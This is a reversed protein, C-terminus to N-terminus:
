LVARRYRNEGDGLDYETLECHGERKWEDGMGAIDALIAGGEPTRATMRSPVAAGLM